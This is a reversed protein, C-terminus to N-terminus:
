TASYGVRKVNLLQDCAVVIGHSSYIATVIELGERFILGEACLTGVLLM